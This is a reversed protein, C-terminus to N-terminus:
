QTENSTKLLRYAANIERMRREAIEHFEPALGAVKDPHYMQALRRYADSIQEPSAEPELGLVKLASTHSAPMGQAPKKPSSGASSQRRTKHALLCTVFATANELSSVNLLINLGKSSTVAVAGYQMVPIRRNNNFRLDPGGDKRVYRWTQDVQRADGPVYEEEIFRTPRCELHLDEYDIGGFAGSQWYLAMDPLFYLKSEGLDLCSVSVNTTVRPPTSSDVAVRTRRVLSSAGANRKWDHTPSEAVMRWIVQATAVYDFSEKILSQRQLGLEDLEYVLRTIRQRQNRRHLIAGVMFILITCSLLGFASLQNREHSLKM